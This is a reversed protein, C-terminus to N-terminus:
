GSWWRFYTYRMAIYCICKLIDLHKGNDLMKIVRTYVTLNVAFNCTWILVRLFALAECLISVYKCRTSTCNHATKKPLQVNAEIYTYINYLVVSILLNILINWTFKKKMLELTTTIIIIPLSVVSAWFNNYTAM